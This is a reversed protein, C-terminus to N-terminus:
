QTLIAIKFVSSNRQQDSGVHSSALVSFKVVVVELETLKLDFIM